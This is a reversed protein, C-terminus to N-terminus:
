GSLLRFGSAYLVVGIAVSLSFPLASWAHGEAIAVIQSVVSGAVLLIGLVGLVYSEWREV